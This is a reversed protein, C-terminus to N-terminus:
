LWSTVIRLAQPALQILIRPVLLLLPVAGLWQRKPLDYLAELLVLPSLVRAFAYADLWVESYAVFTALLTLLYISFEVPGALRKFIMGIALVIAMAAGGLAAYDLVTIVGAILPALPYHVPTLVRQIIGRWPVASFWAGAYPATNLEVFLYWGLAPLAATSFLLAGRFRRTWLVHLLYAATLLFGTERVLPAAALRWVFGV